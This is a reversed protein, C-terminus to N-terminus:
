ILRDIEENIKLNPYKRYHRDIIIKIQSDFSASLFVDGKKCDAETYSKILIYGDGCMVIMYNNTIFKHVITGPAYAIKNQSLEFPIADWIHIKQDNLITFAGPYPRTLARIFNYVELVSKKWDIKGDEPKRQPLYCSEENSQPRIGAHNSFELAMIAKCFMDSITMCSKLYLSEINDFESIKFQGTKVVEGSDIGETIVFISIEFDTKGLILAWNMPSRGRGKQIGWPSGHAGLCANNVHNILWAPVLRQWGLVILFDMELNSLKNFDATETLGYSEVEYYNVDNDSCYASMDVYGSILDFDVGTPKLGIIGELNLQKKIIELIEIGISLTNLVYIKAKSM